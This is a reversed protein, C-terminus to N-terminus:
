PKENRAALRPAHHRKFGWLEALDDALKERDVEARSLEEHTVGIAVLRATYEALSLRVTTRPFSRPRTVSHGLEHAVVNEIIKDELCGNLAIMQERARPMAGQWGLAHRGVEVFVVHTTAFWAVHTPLRRLVGVVVDRVADAGCFELQELDAAPCGECHWRKLRARYAHDHFAADAVVRVDSEALQVYERSTVDLLAARGALDLGALESM